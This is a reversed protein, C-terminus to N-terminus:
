EIRLNVKNYKDEKAIDGNSFKAYFNGKARSYHQSTSDYWFIKDYWFPADYINLVFRDGNNQHFNEQVITPLIQYVKVQSESLSPTSYFTTLKLCSLHYNNDFYEYYDTKGVTEIQWKPDITSDNFNDSVLYQASLQLPLTFLVVTLVLMLPLYRNPHSNSTEPFKEYKGGKKFNYFNKLYFDIYM